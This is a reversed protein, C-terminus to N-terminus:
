SLIQFSVCVGGNTLSNLGETKKKEQDKIFDSRARHFLYLFLDFLSTILYVTSGLRPMVSISDHVM